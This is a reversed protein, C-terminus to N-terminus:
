VNAESDQPDVTALLEGEPTWYQTLRRVPDAEDKGSGRRELRTRVVTIVEVDSSGRGCEQLHFGPKM